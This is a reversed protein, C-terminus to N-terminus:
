TQQFHLCSGSPIRHYRYIYIYRSFLNSNIEMLKVGLVLWLQRYNQYVVTHKGPVYMQQPTPRIFSQEIQWFDYSTIRNLIRCMGRYPHYVVLLKKGYGLSRPGELPLTQVQIAPTPDEFYGTKLTWHDKPYLLKFCAPM